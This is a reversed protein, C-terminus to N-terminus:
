INWTVLVALHSEDVGWFPDTRGNNPSCNDDRKDDSSDYWSGYSTASLLTPQWSYPVLEATM